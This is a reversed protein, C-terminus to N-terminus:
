IIKCMENGSKEFFDIIKNYDKVVSLDKFTKDIDFFIQDKSKTFKLFTISFNLLFNDYEDFKVTHFLRVIESLFLSCGKSNQNLTEMGIGILLVKIYM